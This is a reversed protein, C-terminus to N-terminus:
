QGSLTMEIGLQRAQEVIQREIAPFDIAALKREAEKADAELRAMMERSEIERKRLQAMTGVIGSDNISQTVVAEEAKAERAKTLQEALYEGLLRDCSEVARDKKRDTIRITGEVLGKRIQRVMEEFRDRESSLVDLPAAALTHFFALPFTSQRAFRAIADDLQQLEHVIATSAEHAKDHARQLQHRLATVAKHGDSQEVRALETTVTSLAAREQGIGNEVRALTGKLDGCRKKEAALLTIAAELAHWAPPFRKELDERLAAVSKELAGIRALVTTLQVRLFEALIAQQRATGKAFQGVEAPMKGILSKCEDITGPTKFGEILSRCRRIFEQRNGEMIAKHRAPINPNHLGTEELKDLADGCEHIAEKWDQQWEHLFAKFEKERAMREHALWSALGDHRLSLQRKEDHAFVRKLWDFM